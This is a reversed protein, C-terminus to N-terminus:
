KVILIVGVKVEVHMSFRRGEGRNNGKNLGCSKDQREMNGGKIRKGTGGL